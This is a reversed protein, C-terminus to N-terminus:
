PCGVRWVPKNWIPHYPLAANMLSLSRRLPNAPSVPKGPDLPYLWGHFRQPNALADNIVVSPVQDYVISCVHSPHTPTQPVHPKPTRTPAPTWTPRPTRTPDRPPLDLTPTKAPEVNGQWRLITGSEGVAWGDDSSAMAVSYLSSHTPSNADTWSQGDWHMIAGLDGVAWANDPSLAAVSRLGKSRLSPVESWEAGDWHLSELSGVAWGDAPGSMAVSWLDVDKPYTVETWTLGDWHAITSHSGPGPAMRHGVAWVDNPAVIAVSTFEIDPRSPVLAWVRGNWHLAESWATFRTGRWGWMSFGGVAWGEQPSAVRVSRLYGHKPSAFVTWESGNWRLITSQPLDDDLHGLTVAWGDDASSMDISVLPANDLVPCDVESWTLGDWHLITASYELPGPPLHYYGVAWADDPSVIAVDRLTPGSGGCSWCSWGSQPGRQADTLDSNIGIGVLSAASCIALFRILRYVM